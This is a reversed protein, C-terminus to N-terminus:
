CYQNGTRLQCVTLTITKILSIISQFGTVNKIKNNDVCLVEMNGNLHYISYPFSRINSKYYSPTPFRASSDGELVSSLQSIMLPM